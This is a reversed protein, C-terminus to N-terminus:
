TNRGRKTGAKPTLVQKGRGMNTMTQTATKLKVAETCDVQAKPSTIHVNLARLLSVAFRNNSETQDQLAQLVNPDVSLLRQELAAQILEGVDVINWAGDEFNDDKPNAKPFMKYYVSLHHAWDNITLGLSLMITTKVAVPLDRPSGNVGIKSVILAFAIYFGIKPDNFVGNLVM